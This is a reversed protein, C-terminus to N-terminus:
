IHPCLQSISWFAADISSCFKWSQAQFFEFSLPIMCRQVQSFYYLLGFISLDRFRITMPCLSPQQRYTYEHDSFNLRSYKSSLCNAMRNCSVSVLSSFVKKLQLTSYNLQILCYLTIHRSILADPLRQQPPYLFVYRFSIIDYLWPPKHM